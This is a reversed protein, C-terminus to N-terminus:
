AVANLARVIDALREVPIDGDLRVTVEGHIVDLM